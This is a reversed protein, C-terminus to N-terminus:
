AKKIVVQLTKDDQFTYASLLHYISNLQDIFFEPNILYRIDSPDEKNQYINKELRNVKEPNTNNANTHHNMTLYLLGDSQLSYYMTQILSLRVEDTYFHLVRNCIILNHKNEGFDYDFFDMTHIKFRRQFRQQLEKSLERMEEATLQVNKTKELRYDGFPIPRSSEKDIGTLKQFPSDEFDILDRLGKCGVDLVSEYTTFESKLLEVVNTRRM